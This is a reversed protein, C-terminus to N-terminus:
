IDHAGVGALVTFTQMAMKAYGTGAPTSKAMAVALVLGLEIM